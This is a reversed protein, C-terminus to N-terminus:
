RPAGRYASLRNQMPVLLVGDAAAVTIPPCPLRSRSLVAKDRGARFIWLVGSETGVFVKGDAARASAYHAPGELAHTWLTQGTRADVAHLTGAGDPVYVVGNQLAVTALTRGVSENRWVVAGTAADFCTLCGAGPGHQPSQGIAAYVRGGECVPTSVAESPGDAARRNWASYLLPRGDRERYHPPTCDASWVTRLTRAPVGTGSPPEFAYLFGDGGCFFILRRGAAEGCSPSSWNGHLTRRGIHADDTAVLRGTKADLVALTPADPRVVYKHAADVGNGTNVYLLGGALLATSACTDHPVCGLEQMLDFRWLIDGDGPGLAAGNTAVGMYALEDAFPGGNGDAQGRRDLCLVDGRNGLLYVREGDSVPGSCVGCKWLDFHYPEAKGELCRPVPLTWVVRGTALEACIVAGGGSPQYGERAVGGDNAGLFVLDHDVTPISYQHTGLRLEWAPAAGELSAPLGKADSVCNPSEGGGWRCVDSAMCAAAQAVLAATWMRMFGRAKGARSEAAGRVVLHAPIM